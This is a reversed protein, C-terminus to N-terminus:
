QKRDKMITDLLTNFQKEEQVAVKLKAYYMPIEFYFKSLKVFDKETTIIVADRHKDIIPNIDKELDFKHHDPFTYHTIIRIGIREISKEFSVPNGIGSILIAEKISEPSHSDNNKYAVLTEIEYKTSIVTKSFKQIKYPIIQNDSIDNLVLCDAYKLIGVPERLTGAPTVFGNGFPKKANLLVIDFDHTVKLHQFSDDLIIVDPIIVADLYQIAARRNKGVIVPIGPLNEAILLPEDGALQADKIISKENSILRIKHEYAGKYGRHSIAVKMGRSHLAKALLITFPTKGNGGMTLNGVSIV